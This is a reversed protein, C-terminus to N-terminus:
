AILGRRIATVAAHTRDVAGLKRIIRVVHQKVTDPSIVLKFGIQANTEGEAMLTVVERERPSLDTGYGQWSM